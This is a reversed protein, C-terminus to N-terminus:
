NKSISSYTTCILSKKFANTPLFFFFVATLFCRLWSHLDPQWSFEPYRTWDLERRGSWSNLLFGADGSILFGRILFWSLGDLLHERVLSQCISGFIFFTLSTAPTDNQTIYYSIVFTCIKLYGFSPLGAPDLKFRAKFTEKAYRGKPPVKNEQSGTAPTSLM